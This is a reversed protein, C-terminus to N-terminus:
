DCSPKRKWLPTSSILTVAVTVSRVPRNGGPQAFFVEDDVFVALWDFHRVEAGLARRDTEADDEIGAAAHLALLPLRRAVGDVAEQLLQGVRLVLKEQIAETGERAPAPSSSSRRASLQLRPRM